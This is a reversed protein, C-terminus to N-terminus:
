DLLLHRLHQDRGALRLHEVRQSPDHDAAALRQDHGHRRQVPRLRQGRRGHDEHRLLLDHQRVPRRRDHDPQHRGCGTGTRRLGADRRGLQRRQDHRHLLPHRLSTATGTNGDDGPATWTLTLSTDTPSGAALNTVAAPPTIDAPTGMVFSWDDVSVWAGGVTSTHSAQVRTITKGTPAQYGIFVLRPNTNGLAPLTVTGTTGDNHTFIAQGADVAQDNRFCACFGLAIVGKGGTATISADVWDTTGGVTNPATSIADQYSTGSFSGRGYSTYSGYNYSLAFTFSVSDTTTYYAVLQNVPTPTPAGNFAVIKPNLAQFSAKTVGYSVAVDNLGAPDIVTSLDSPSGYTLVGNVFTITSATTTGSAVNSLASVNPVEDSTKMAFYYTTGPTLGTVTVNQNTGAAAPSPEGPVQTASAFNADNITSTSYRIDYSTATGTNGDDGPATWTLTITSSTPSSTALNTVAAPPIGDATAASAINSLASTNPM